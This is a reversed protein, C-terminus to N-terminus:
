ETVHTLGVLNPFNAMATQGADKSFSYRDKSPLSSTHAAYGYRIQQARGM